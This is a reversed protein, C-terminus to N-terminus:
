DYGWEDATGRATPRHRDLDIAVWEDVKVAVIRIVDAPTRFRYVGAADRHAGAGRELAEAQTGNPLHGRRLDARVMGDASQLLVLWRGKSM